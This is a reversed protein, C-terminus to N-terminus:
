LLTLKYREFCLEQLPAQFFILLTLIHTRKQKLDNKGGSIHTTKNAIEYM